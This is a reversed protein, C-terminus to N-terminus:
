MIILTDMPVPVRLPTSETVKAHQAYTAVIVIKVNFDASNVSKIQDMMM